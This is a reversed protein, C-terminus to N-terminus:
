ADAWFPVVVVVLALPALQELEACPETKLRDPHVALVLAGELVVFAGLRASSPLEDVLNLVLLYWAGPKYKWTSKPDARDKSSNSISM